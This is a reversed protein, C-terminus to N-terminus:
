VTKNATTSNLSVSLHSYLRQKYEATACQQRSLPYLTCMQVSHQGARYNM